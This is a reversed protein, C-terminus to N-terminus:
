RRRRRGRTVGVVGSSGVTLSSRPARTPMPAARARQGGEGNIVDPTVRWLRVTHDSSATALTKGDPSFAVSAVM